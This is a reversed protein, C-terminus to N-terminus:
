GLPSSHCACNQCLLLTLRLPSPQFTICCNLLWFKLSRNIFNPTLIFVFIKQLKMIKSVNNKDAVKFLKIYCFIFIYWMLYFKDMHVSDWVIFFRISIPGAEGLNWFLISLPLFYFSTTAVRQELCPNPPSRTVESPSTLCPTLLLLAEYLHSSNLSMPAVKQTYCTPAVGLTHLDM